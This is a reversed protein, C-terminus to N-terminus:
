EEEYEYENCYVFKDITIEGKTCLQLVNHICRKANCQIVISEPEPSLCDECLREDVDGTADTYKHGCECCTFEIM